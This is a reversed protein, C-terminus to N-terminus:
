STMGLIDARQAHASATSHPAPMRSSKLTKAAHKALGSTAALNDGIFRVKGEIIHDLVVDGKRTVLQMRVKLKTAGTVTTVARRRESGPSYSEVLLKLVLVGRTQSANKNGSRFVQSFEGSKNLARIVNEYIADSFCTDLSTTGADVRDVQVSWKQAALSKEPSAQGSADETLREAPAGHSVLSNKLIEGEGKVLRFIAAHFGGESDRYEIDVNDYKKHAFLSVVRGGGFPVAAKGLMMPVGGVEKDQQDLVVSEVSAVNLRAVPKGDHRFVLDEGDITLDGTSNHRVDEFGLVQTAHVRVSSVSNEPRKQGNAQLTLSALLFLLALAARQLICPSTKRVGPRCDIARSGLM